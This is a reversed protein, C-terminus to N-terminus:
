NKVSVTDVLKDYIPCEVEWSILANYVDQCLVDKYLNAVDKIHLEKAKKYVLFAETPTTYYGLHERKGFVTLQAQFRKGKVSVGVPLDGRSAGSDTLLMNVERPVMRCFDESYCKNGKKLIDKDLQWDDEKYQNNFWKAFEQFNHWDKHVYCGRYTPKKEQHENVYCRRLMSKWTSYGKTNNGEIKTKHEGVGLYGVGFVSLHYPNKVRGRRLNSVQVFVEYGHEDLFKVKVKKSNVYDVVLCECGEKTTFVDGTKIKSM